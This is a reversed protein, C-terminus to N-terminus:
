VKVGLCAPCNINILTVQEADDDYHIQAGNANLTPYKNEGETFYHEHIGLANAVATANDKDMVTQTTMMVRHGAKILHLAHIQHVSKQLVGHYDFSIKM